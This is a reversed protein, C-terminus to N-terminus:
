PKTCREKITAPDDGDEVFMRLKIAHDLIKYIDANDGLARMAMRLAEIRVEMEDM